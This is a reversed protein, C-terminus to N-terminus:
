AFVQMIIHRIERKGQEYAIIKIRIDYNRSAPTQNPSIRVQDAFHRKPVVSLHSM